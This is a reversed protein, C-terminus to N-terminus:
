DPNNIDVWYKGTPNPQSSDNGALAYLTFFYKISSFKQNAAKEITEILAPHTKETHNM